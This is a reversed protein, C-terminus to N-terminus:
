YLFSKGSQKPKSKRPETRSNELDDVALLRGDKGDRVPSFTSDHIGSAADDNATVFGAETQPPEGYLRRTRGTHTRIMEEGSKSDEFM